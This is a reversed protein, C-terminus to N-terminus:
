NTHFFIEQSFHYEHLSIQFIIRKNPTSHFNKPMLQIDPISLKRYIIPTVHMIDNGKHIGHIINFIAHVDIM